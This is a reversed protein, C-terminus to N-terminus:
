VAAHILTIPSRLSVSSDRESRLSLNVNLSNLFVISETESLKWDQIYIYTGTKCGIISREDVILGYLFRSGLLSARFM